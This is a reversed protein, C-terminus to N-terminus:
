ASPFSCAMATPKVFIDVASIRSTLAYNWEIMTEFGVHTHSRVDM